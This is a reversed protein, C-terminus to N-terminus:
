IIKDQRLMFKEPIRANLSNKVVELLPLAWFLMFVNFFFSLEKSLKFRPGNSIKELINNLKVSDFNFFVCTM